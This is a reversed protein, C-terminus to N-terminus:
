AQIAPSRVLRGESKLVHRSPTSGSRLGEHHTRCLWWVVNWGDVSLWVTDLSSSNRLEAEEWCLKCIPPGIRNSAQDYLEYNGPLHAQRVEDM